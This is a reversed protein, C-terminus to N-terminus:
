TSFSQIKLNTWTREWWDCAIHIWLHHRSWKVHCSIHDDEFYARKSYWYLARIGMPMDSLNRWISKWKLIWSRTVGLQGLIVFCLFAWWLMSHWNHFGRKNCMAHLIYVIKRTFSSVNRGSTLWGKVDCSFVNKRTFSFMGSPTSRYFCWGSNLGKKMKKHHAFSVLHLDRVSITFAHLSNRISFLFFSVPQLASKHFWAHM